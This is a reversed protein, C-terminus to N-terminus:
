GADGVVLALSEAMVRPHYALEVHAPGEVLRNDAGEITATTVPFVM